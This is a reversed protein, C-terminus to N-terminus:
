NLWAHHKVYRSHETTTPALIIPGNQLYSFRAESLHSMVPGSNHPELPASGAKLGKRQARPRGDTQTLPLSNSHIEPGSEANLEKQRVKGAELESGQQTGPEPSAELKPPRGGWSRSPCFGMASRLLSLHLSDPGSPGASKKKNTCRRAKRGYSTHCGAAPAPPPRPSLTEM